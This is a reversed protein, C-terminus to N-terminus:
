HFKQIHSCVGSQSEKSNGKGTQRHGADHCRRHREVGHTGVFASAGTPEGIIGDDIIKRCTQLRGGLFTDPANGVFLNKSKALALIKEGDKLDTAFPKESYVHKGAELAAMSIEAHVAPITLNLICDIDPDQILEDPQCVKAINYQKAKQRSEELDLSACAVIDIVEFKQCTKLYIDSIVGCGILGVRLKEM